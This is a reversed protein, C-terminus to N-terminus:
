IRSSRSRRISAMGLRLARWSGIACHTFSYTVSERLRKHGIARSKNNTTEPYFNIDMSYGFNVEIFDWFRKLM